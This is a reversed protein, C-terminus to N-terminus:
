KVLRKARFDLDATIYINKSEIIKKWIDDSMIIRGIRRSEGETFILNTKRSRLAEYVLSEFTKQSNARSLGVSGLLSGRHNAAGELDLIDYGKEKLSKLMDTKGIGTNGYLTVLTIDNLIQSLEQRICQRYAKYGGNLKYVHIGLSNMLSHISGSRMGGRACFVVVKKGKNNYYLNQFKKFIGPLRRSIHQIGIEKAIEVSQNKYATGVEVREEDLLVPINIACPITEELFESESRVDIFICKELENLLESYSILRFLSDV